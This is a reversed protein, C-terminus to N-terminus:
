HRAIMSYTALGEVSPFAFQIKETGQRNAFEWFDTKTRSM